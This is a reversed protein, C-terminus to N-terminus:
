HQVNRVKVDGEKPKIEPEYGWQRVGKCKDSFLLDVSGARAQALQGDSEGYAVQYGQRVKHVVSRLTGICAVIGNTTCRYAGAWNKRRQFVSIGAM